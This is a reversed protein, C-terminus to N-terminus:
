NFKNTLISQLVYKLNNTLKINNKKNCYNEAFDKLCKFEKLLLNINNKNLEKICNFMEYYSIHRLNNLKKLNNKNINKNILRQDSDLLYFNHIIRNVEEHSNCVILLINNKFCFETITSLNVEFDKLKTNTKFFNIKKKNYLNYVEFKNDMSNESSSNENLDENLYYKLSNLTHKKCKTNTYDINILKEKKLYKNIKSDLDNDKNYNKPSHKFDYFIPKKINTKNDYFILKNGQTIRLKYNLYKFKNCPKNLDNSKPNEKSGSDNKNKVIYTLCIKKKLYDNLLNSIKYNILYSLENYICKIYNLIYNHKEQNISLIVNKNYSFFMNKFIKKYQISNKYSNNSIISSVNSSDSIFNNDENILRKIVVKDKVKTDTNIKVESIFKKVLNYKFNLQKELNLAKKNKLNSGLNNIFEFQKDIKFLIIKKSKKLFESNEKIKNLLNDISYNYYCNSKCLVNIDILIFFYKNNIDVHYKIENDYKFVFNFYKLIDITYYEYILNNNVSIKISNSDFYKNDNNIKPNM